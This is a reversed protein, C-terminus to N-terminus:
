LGVHDGGKREVILLASGLWPSLPTLLFRGVFALDKRSLIKGTLQQAGYIIELNGALEIIGISRSPPPYGV